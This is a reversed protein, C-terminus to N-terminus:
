LTVLAEPEQRVKGGHHIMDVSLAWIFGRVRMSGKDCCLLTVVVCM